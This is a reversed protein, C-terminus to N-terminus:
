QPCSYDEAEQSKNALGGEFKKGIRATNSQVISIWAAFMSAKNHFYTQYVNLLWLIRSTYLLGLYPSIVATELFHEFQNM